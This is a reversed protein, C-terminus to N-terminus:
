VKIRMFKKAFTKKKIFDELLKEKVIVLKAVKHALKKFNPMNLQFTLFSFKAKQLIYWLIHLQLDYTIFDRFYAICFKLWSTLSFM